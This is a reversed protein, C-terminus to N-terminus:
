GHVFCTSETTDVSGCHSCYGARSSTRDGGHFQPEHDITEDM